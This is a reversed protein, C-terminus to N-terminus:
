PETEFSAVSKDVMMHNEGHQSYFGQSHLSLMNSHATTLSGHHGTIM